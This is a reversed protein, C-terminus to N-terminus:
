GFFLKQEVSITLYVASIFMKEVITCVSNSIVSEIGDLQWAPILHGM